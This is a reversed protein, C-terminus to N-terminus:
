STALLLKDRSEFQMRSTTMHTFKPLQLMEIPSIM